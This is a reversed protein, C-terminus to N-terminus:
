DILETGSIFWQIDNAANALGKIIDTEDLYIPTTLLAITAGPPIPVQFILYNSSSGNDDSVYVSATATNTGDKNALYISEIKYCSEAPVDVIPTGSTTLATSVMVPNITVVNALNPTAM